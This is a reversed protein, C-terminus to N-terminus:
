YITGGEGGTYDGSGPVIQPLEVTGDVNGTAGPVHGGQEGTPGPTYSGGGPPTATSGSNDTDTSVSNYVEEWIELEWNSIKNDGDLDVGRGDVAIGDSGVEKGTDANPDDKDVQIDPKNAIDNPDDGKYEDDGLVVNDSTSNVSSDQEVESKDTVEYGDITGREASIAVPLALYTNTLMELFDAKTVAEDWRCNTDTIIGKNYAVVLAKYM